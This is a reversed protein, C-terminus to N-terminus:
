KNYPTKFVEQGPAGGWKKVYNDRNKMFNSNLSPDKKITMSNRFVGPNFFNDQGQQVGALQMRYSYDNDEFYAPYFTEDFQGVLTFTIDSIAFVSWMKNGKWFGVEPKSTLFNHVDQQGHSFIIDDNLILAHKYGSQFICNCLFNWSGAVGYNKGTQFFSTISKRMPIDQMGNDLVFIETDPFYKGYRVLAEDLLDARNITPIGIAFCFKRM